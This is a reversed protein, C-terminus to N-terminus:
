SAAWPPCSVCPQFRHFLLVLTPTHTTRGQALKVLKKVGLGPDATRIKAVRAALAAPNAPKKDAEVVKPQTPAKPAPPAAAPAAPASFAGSAQLGSQLKRAFASM